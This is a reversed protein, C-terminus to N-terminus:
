GIMDLFSLKAVATMQPLCSGALHQPQRFGQIAPKSLAALGRFADVFLSLPKASFAPRSPEM